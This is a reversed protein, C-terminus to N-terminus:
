RMDGPKHFAIEWEGRYPANGKNHEKHIAQYRDWLKDPCKGRQENAIKNLEDQQM